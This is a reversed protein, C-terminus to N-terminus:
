LPQPGSASTKEDEFSKKQANGHCYRRLNNKTKAMQLVYYYIRKEANKLDVKLFLSSFGAFFRKPPKLFGGDPSSSLEKENGSRSGGQM